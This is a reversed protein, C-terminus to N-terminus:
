ANGQGTINEECLVETTFTWPQGNECEMNSIQTFSLWSNGWDDRIVQKSQPVLAGSTIPTAFDTENNMIYAFTDAKKIIQDQPWDAFKCYNFTVNGFTYDEERELERLDFITWESVLYCSLKAAQVNDMVAGNVSQIAFLAAMLTYKVM